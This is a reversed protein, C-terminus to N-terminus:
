ARRARLGVKALQPAPTIGTWRKQEKVHIGFQDLARAATHNVIDDITKPRNYFAPV